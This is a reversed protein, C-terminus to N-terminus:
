VQHSIVGPKYTEMIKEANLIISDYFSLIMDVTGMLGCGEPAVDGRSKFMELFPSEVVERPLSNWHSVM